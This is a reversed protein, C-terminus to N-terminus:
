SNAVPSSQLLELRLDLMPQPRFLADDHRKGVCDAKPRRFTLKARGANVCPVDAGIADVTALDAGDARDSGAPKGRSRSERGHSRSRSPELQELSMVARTEVSDGNRETGIIRALHPRSQLGGEVTKNVDLFLTITLNCTEHSVHLDVNCDIQLSKGFIGPGSYKSQARGRNGNTIHAEHRCHADLEHVVDNGIPDENGIVLLFVIRLLDNM